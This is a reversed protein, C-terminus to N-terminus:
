RKLAARVVPYSLALIALVVVGAGVLEYASPLATAFLASLLLSSIVGSLVSSARNVPVTFANEQPELLVLAGFVGAFQSCLGTAAVLLMLDGHRWIETFGRALESGFRSPLLTMLALGILALPTAVMQEEVFFAIRRVRAEEMSLGSSKTQTSMWRLRVFYAVLYIAIVVGAAVTLRAGRDEVFGVFLAVLALGSGTWSWWPITAFARGSLRDVIPAMVLVGGRMLLMAFLISIGDFSYALTTTLVIAATAVGSMLTVLRPRPLNFPGVRVHLAHKWWGMASLFVLMGVVSTATALPLMATGTWAVSRVSGAHGATISKTLLTYPVYATFYGLAFLWIRISTAQTLPASAEAAM